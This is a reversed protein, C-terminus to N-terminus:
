IEVVDGPKLAGPLPVSLAPAVTQQATVSNQTSHWSSHWRSTQKATPQTVRLRASRTYDMHMDSVCVCVCANPRRLYQALLGPWECYTNAVIHKHNLAVLKCECMNVRWCRRWTRVARCVCACLSFSLSLSLSPPLSLSLAGLSACSRTRKKSVANTGKGKGGLREVAKVVHAYACCTEFGVGPCGQVQVAVVIVLQWCSQVQVRNSASQSCPQLAGVILISGAM